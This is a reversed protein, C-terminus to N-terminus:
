DPSIYSETILQTGEEVVMRDVYINEYQNTSTPIEEDNGHTQEENTPEHIFFNFDPNLVDDRPQLMLGNLNADFDLAPDLSSEIVMDMDSPYDM